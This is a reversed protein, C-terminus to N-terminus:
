VGCELCLTCSWLWAPIYNYSGDNDHQQMRRVLGVRPQTPQFAPLKYRHIHAATHGDDILDAATGVAPLGFPSYSGTPLSLGYFNPLMLGNLQMAAVSRDRLSPAQM